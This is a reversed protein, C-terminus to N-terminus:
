QASKTSKLEAESKRRQYENFFVVYYQYINGVYDVPQRGIESAVIWEVNGFWKDPDYGQMKAKERLKAFRSPGANYAALAFFTQSAPDPALKPFYSDALYRLYKVGAHVNKETDSAIGRINIPNGEATTPKIQMLGVAGASSRAAPDFKSEQYSQAAILLWDIEYEKGYKQFFARFRALKEDYDAKRMEKLYTAEQLYRKFIINGLLTGKKVTPVFGDVEQLLAPANKRVAIAIEGDKRVAAEPHLKLGDLVDLWLEAKHRDVIVMPIGGAAVMEMLDEDELREDAYVLDMTKKGERALRRNLADLSQSYSASKRVYITKGSLDDVSLIDPVSDATVPVEEVDKLLPASFTVLKERDETITLNGLAIDGRADSLDKFLNTRQTPILVVEFDKVKDGHTTALHKEFEVMLDASSGRRVGKDIFFGTKSFPVLVRLYGRAVLDDFDGEFPQRLVDELNEALETDTSFGQESYFIVSSVAIILVLFAHRYIRVLRSSLKM